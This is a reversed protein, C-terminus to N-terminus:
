AGVYSPIDLAAGVFFPTILRHVRCFRSYDLATTTAGISDLTITAAGVYYPTSGISSPTIVIAGVFAYNDWFFLPPGLDIPKYQTAPRSVVELSLSLSSVLMCHTFALPSRM